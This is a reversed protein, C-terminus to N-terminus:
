RYKEEINELQSIFKNGTKQLWVKRNKRISELNFDEYGSECGCCPCIIYETYGDETWFEDPSYDYGCIRCICIEKMDKDKLDSEM